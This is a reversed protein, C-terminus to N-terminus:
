AEPEGFSGIPMEMDGIRGAVRSLRAVLQTRSTVGLKGYLNSLHYEITKVSVVLEAAAERNSLGQTVLRAVAFERPTLTLHARGRPARRRGTGALERECRELFPQAGLAQFTEAAAALHIAADRRSGRRRLFAGYAVQLRAEVFPMGLPRARSMGEEFAARAQSELGRNAAAIGSVHLATVHASPLEREVAHAQLTEVVPIAEDLRGLELLAEAYLDRWPVVVHERPGDEDVFALLPYLAALVHEPDGRALALRAAAICAYVLHATARSKAARQRALEVFAEAATWEGRLAHVSGIVTAHFGSALLDDADDAISLGLHAYSLADDWSGARFELDARHFLLPGTLPGPGSGVLRGQAAAFDRRAGNLDDTYVRVVGRGFLFGARELGPDLEEPDPATALAERARGAVATGIM